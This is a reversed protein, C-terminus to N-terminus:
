FLVKPNRPKESIKDMDFAKLTFLYQGNRYPKMTFAGENLEQHLYDFVNSYARDMLMHYKGDIVYYVLGGLKKKFEEPTGGMQAVAIAHDLVGNPQTSVTTVCASIRFHNYFAVHLIAMDECDGLRETWTEYPTQWYEKEPRRDGLQASTILGM